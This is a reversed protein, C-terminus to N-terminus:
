ADENRQPHSLTEVIISLENRERVLDGLKRYLHLESAKWMMLLDEKDLAEIVTEDISQSLLLSRFENISAERTESKYQNNKMKIELNVGMEASIASNDNGLTIDDVLGNRSNTRNYARDNEESFQLLQRYTKILELERDRISEADPLDAHAADEYLSPTVLTHFLDPPFSTFSGRKGEHKLDFKVKGRENESAKAYNSLEDSEYATNHLGSIEKGFQNPTSCVVGNSITSIGQSPIRCRSFLLLSIIICTFRM